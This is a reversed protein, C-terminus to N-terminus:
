EKKCVLESLRTHIQPGRKCIVPHFPISKCRPEAALGSMLVEWSFQPRQLCILQQPGPSHPASLDNLSM